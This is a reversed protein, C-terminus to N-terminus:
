GVAKAWNEALYPPRKETQEVTPIVPTGAVEPLADYLAQDITGAEVM